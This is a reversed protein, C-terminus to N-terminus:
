EDVFITEIIYVQQERNKNYIKRYLIQIRTDNSFELQDEFRKFEEFTRFEGKLIKNATEKSVAMLEWKHAKTHNYANVFQRVANLGKTKAIELEEEIAM